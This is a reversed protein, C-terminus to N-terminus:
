ARRAGLRILLSRSTSADIRTSRAIAHDTASESLGYLTDSADSCVWVKGDAPNVSMRPNAGLAATTPIDLVVPTADLLEPYRMLKFVTTSLLLIERAADDVAM